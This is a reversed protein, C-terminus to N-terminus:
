ALRKAAMRKLAYFLLTALLLASALSFVIFLAFNQSLQWRIYTIWPLSGAYYVADTVQSEVTTGRIVSMAGKIPSDLGDRDSLAAVIDNLDDSHAGWLLVVSRGLSLPSEFGIVRARASAGDFLAAVSLPMAATASPLLWHLPNWDFGFFKWGTQRDTKVGMYPRWTELLTQNDGTAILLLDKYAVEALQGARVISLATAPYGTSAGLRGMLDLYTTYEQASPADPLVVATESLDAMRTFPFGSSGFVGLNPMALYHPYDSINIWSEPEIAGRMNDVIIDRCEGEKSYDYKFNLQLQSQHALMYMPVNIRTQISMSNDPMVQGMLGQMRGVPLLPISRVLQENFNVLLSSDASKLVQPTYRYKLSIPVGADNWQFLDPPLRMNLRIAGPNHGTVNMATANSFESFAVQRDSALWNPADYPKRAAVTIAPLVLM